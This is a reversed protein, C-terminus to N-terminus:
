KRKIKNIIKRHKRIQESIMNFSALSFLKNRIKFIKLEKQLSEGYQLLRKDFVDKACSYLEIDFRNKKKILEITEQSIKTTSRTRKSKNKRAYYINRWGINKRFMILSEDFKELLGFLFHDSQLNKKAIELHDRTVYGESGMDCLYRTQLNAFDDAIGLELFKEISINGITGLVQVDVKKKRLLHNHTSKKKKIIDLYQSIYRKVPDRLMAMYVFDTEIYRDIGYQLHGMILKNESFVYKNKKLESFSKYSIKNKTLGVDLITNESYQKKLITQLTLGGTKPLHLFILVKNNIDNKETVKRKSSISYNM